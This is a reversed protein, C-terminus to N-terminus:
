KKKKRKDIIKKHRKLYEVSHIIKFIGIETSYFM